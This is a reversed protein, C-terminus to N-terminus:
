YVAVICPVMFIFNFLWINTIQTLDVEVSIKRSLTTVIHENIGVTPSIKYYVTTYPPILPRCEANFVKNRLHM